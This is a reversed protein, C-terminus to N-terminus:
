AHHIVREVEAATTRGSAVLQAGAVELPEMGSDIAASRLEEATAGRNICARVPPTISMLEFLGVRGAYGSGTCARCPQDDVRGAGACTVCTTRVLRQAMVQCLSTAVLYPEIGLDLLRAIASAADNTHLTSFVLHGTLSAQIALRATEQDRIEGVLIVDPDQRLLHRLGNAFTVGKRTNVQTQSIPIGFASLEYEIPDEITMINREAVQLQRLAAYLTTTKGSGTPGTVLIIGSARNAATLFSQQILPPMGVANLDLLGRGADLLRVVVREGFATPITSIRLDISREGLRVSARGDQPILREAVDMRGIVKIRSVLAKALAAPLPRGADLIGDIRLRMRIEQGLPQLHLDSAGRQVASLLLQDIVQVVPAKGDSALLDRDAEQVLRDLEGDSGVLSTTGVAATAEHLAQDADAMIAGYTREILSVMVDDALHLATVHRGLRKTTNWLATASTRATVGLRYTVQGVDMGLGIVHHERAFEVPILACFGQDGAPPITQDAIPAVPDSAASM